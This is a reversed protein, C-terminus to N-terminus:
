VVVRPERMKRRIKRKNVWEIPSPLKSPRVLSNRRWIIVWIKASDSSFRILTFLDFLSEERRVGIDLVFSGDETLKSKVKSAFVYLWDVYESQPRNGYEKQRQLAFPPSTIALQVSSDPLM